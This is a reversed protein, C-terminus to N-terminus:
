SESEANVLLSNLSVSFLSGNQALTPSNSVNANEQLTEIDYEDDIENNHLLESLSEDNPPASHKLIVPQNSSLPAM